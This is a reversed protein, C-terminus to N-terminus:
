IDLKGHISKVAALRNVEAILRSTDADVLPALLQPVGVQKRALKGLIGSCASMSLMSIMFLGLLMPRTRSKLNRLSNLMM